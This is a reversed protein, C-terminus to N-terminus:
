KEFPHRNGLAGSLTEEDAYEIDGGTSLGRALRSVIVPFERLKRRLYLATMDGEATPNTAIIIEEPQKNKVRALLQSITLVETQTNKGVELVGGLVHYLGKYLGTREISIVDLADEVVCIISTDRNKSQCIECLEKECVHFCERCQHLDAINEINKAFELLTEKDKKFLYLVLREAMKQGISPLSSFNKILKEFPKPYTM